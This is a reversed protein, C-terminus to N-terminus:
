DALAQLRLDEVLYEATEVERGAVANVVRGKVHVAAGNDLGQMVESSVRLPLAGHYVDSGEPSYVVAWMQQTPDYRLEGRIWTFQATDFGYEIAGAPVSSLASNALGFEMEDDTERVFGAQRIGSDREISVDPGLDDGSDRDFFDGSGNDLPFPVDGDDAGQSDFDDEPDENYTKNPVYPEEQSEPIVLSGGRNFNNSPAYVPGRYPQHMYMGPFCGVTTLCTLLTFLCVGYRPAFSHGDM